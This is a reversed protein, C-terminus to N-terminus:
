NLRAEADEALRAPRFRAEALARALASALALAPTAAEAHAERGSRVVVTAMHGGGPGHSLMYGAWEGLLTLAASAAGGAALLRELEDEAPLAGVAQNCPAPALLLLVLLERLREAEDPPGGLACDTAFEGLRATWTRPDMRPHRPESM